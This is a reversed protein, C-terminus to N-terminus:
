SKLFFPDKLLSHDFPKSELDIEKSFYKTLVDDNFESKRTYRIENSTNQAKPEIEFISNNKIRESVSHFASKVSYMTYDFPNTKIQSLAHYLIPGNDLGKSLLHITSGVLHPNNDYLAWFNCDTGRYFPSIGMHINIGKNKVLFEVLEGRIYSCGFIIYIDSKTFDSLTELTLKNLDGFVIPILKINKKNDNIYQNGFVKFQAQDVKKFYERMKDTVQYHGPIIGPFITGSEQVVFLEKSILSLLNIFYNHRSKNSTFLTIKM